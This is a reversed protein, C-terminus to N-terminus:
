VDFVDGHERKGLVCRLCAGDFTDKLYDTLDSADIGRDGVIEIEVHGDIEVGIKEVVGWAHNTGWSREHGDALLTLLLLGCLLLSLHSLLVCSRGLGRRLDIDAPALVENLFHCAYGGSRVM